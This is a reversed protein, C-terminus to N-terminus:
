PAKKLAEKILEGEIKASLIVVSKEAAVSFTGLAKSILQGYNDIKRTAIVGLEKVDGLFKSLTAASRADTAHIRLDVTIEDTVLIRGSVATIKGALAATRADGGLAQKIEETALGAFWFSQKPDQDKLIAQLEKKLKPEKQRVANLVYEKTRGILITQRDVILAFGTLEGESIEYIKLNAETHLKANDPNKEIFDAAAKRLKEVDFNGKIVLLLKPASNAEGALLLTHIDHLPDVGLAELAQQAEKNNKLASKVPEMAYKEVLDFKKVIASDLLQKVNVYVVMDSDAPLYRTADDDARVPSALPLLSVFAVASAIAIVRPM